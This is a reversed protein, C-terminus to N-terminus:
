GRHGSRFEWPTVAGDKDADAEEFRAKGAAMFEVKSVKGSKDGDMPAFRARKAEQRAKMREENRGEGTGMRVFMYEEETLESDDDVDMAFFVSERQAAAEDDSIRGDDNADVIEFRRMQGQGGEGGMMGHFWGQGQGMGQRMGQGQGYGHGKGYGMGQMNDDEARAPLSGVVTMALIAAVATKTLKNFRTM